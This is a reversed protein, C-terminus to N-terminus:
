KGLLESLPVTPASDWGQDNEAPSLCLVRAVESVKLSSLRVSPLREDDEHEHMLQDFQPLSLNGRAARLINIAKSLKMPPSM